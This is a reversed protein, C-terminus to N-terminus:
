ANIANFDVHMWFDSSASIRHYLALYHSLNPFIQPLGLFTHFKGEPTTRPKVSHRHLQLQINYIIIM